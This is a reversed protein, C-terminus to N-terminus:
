NPAPDVEGRHGHGMVGAKEHFRSLLTRRLSADERRPKPTLDITDFVMPIRWVSNIRHGKPDFFNPPTSAPDICTVTQGALSQCPSNHQVVVGVTHVCCQIPNM